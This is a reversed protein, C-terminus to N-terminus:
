RPPRRPGSSRRLPRTKGDEADPLRWDVLAMGKDAQRKAAGGAGAFEVVCAADDAMAVGWSGGPGTVTAAGGARVQVGAKGEGTDLIGDHNDDAYVVGGLYCKASGKGLVIALSYGGKAAVVAVGVERWEPLLLKHGDFRYTRRGKVDSVEDIRALARAYAADLSPANLAMLAFGADAPAYGVSRMTPLPDILKNRLPTTKLLDRAAASLQANLCAMPQPKARAVGRGWDSSHFDPDLREGLPIQGRQVMISVDFNCVRPDARHRNIRTWVVAEDASAGAPVEGAVLAAALVLVLISTRIMYYHYCPNSELSYFDM